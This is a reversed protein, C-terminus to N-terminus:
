SLVIRGKNVKSPSPEPAPAPAPALEPEEALEVNEIKPMEWLFIAGTPLSGLMTNTAHDCLSALSQLSALLDVFVGEDGVSVITKQDPSIRCKTVGGSHGIGVYHCFGEDYNWVQSCASGSDLRISAM